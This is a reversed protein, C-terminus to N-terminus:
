FYKVYVLPKNFRVVRRYLNEAEQSNRIKNILEINLYNSDIVFFIKYYGEEFVIESFEGLFTDKIVKTNKSNLQYEHIPVTFVSYDMKIVESFYQEKEIKAVRGKFRELDLKKKSKILIVNFSKILKSHNLEVKSENGQNNNVSLISMQGIIMRIFKQKIEHESSIISGLYKELEEKNSMKSLNQETGVLVAECEVLFDVVNFKRLSQAPMFNPVKMLESYASDLFKSIGDLDSKTYNLNGIQVYKSKKNVSNKNEKKSVSNKLPTINKTKTIENKSEARSNSEGSIFVTNLLTIFFLLLYM